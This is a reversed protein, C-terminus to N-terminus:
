EGTVFRCREFQYVGGIPREMKWRTACGWLNWVVHLRGRPSWEWARNGNMDLFFTGGSRYVGIKDKGSNNWDGTIPIDDANGFVPTADGLIPGEYKRNGNLDLYRAGALSFVLIRAVM